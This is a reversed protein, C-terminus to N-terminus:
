DIRPQYWDGDDNRQQKIKRGDVEHLSPPRLFTKRQCAIATRTLYEMRWMHGYVASAVRNIVSLLAWAVLLILVLGGGVLILWSVAFSVTELVIAQSSEPVTM